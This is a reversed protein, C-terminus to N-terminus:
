TFSAAELDIGRGFHRDGPHAPRTEAFRSACGDDRRCWGILDGRLGLQHTGGSHSFGEYRRDARIGMQFEVHREHRYRRLETGLLLLRDVRKSNTKIERLRIPEPFADFERPPTVRPHL